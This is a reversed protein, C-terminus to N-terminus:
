GLDPIGGDYPNEEADAVECRRIFAEADQVCYECEDADSLITGGCALCTVFRRQECEQAREIALAEHERLSQELITRYAPNRQEREDRECAADTRGAPTADVRIRYALRSKHSLGIFYLASKVDNYKGMAHWSCLHSCRPTGELTDPAIVYLVSGESWCWWLRYDTRKCM